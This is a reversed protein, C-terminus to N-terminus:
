TSNSLMSWYSTDVGQLAWNELDATFCPWHYDAPLFDSDPPQQQQQQPEDTLSSSSAVPPVPIEYPHPTALQPDLSLLTFSPNSITSPPTTSISTSTSSSPKTQGHPILSPQSSSSSSLSPNITVTGLFPITLHVDHRSGTADHGEEHQHQQQQQVIPLLQAITDGAEICLRDGSTSGTERMRECVREAMDRDEARTNDDHGGGSGNANPVSTALHGLLLSMAAVLAAYDVHRSATATSCVNRFELFRRLVERSAQMCVGRSYDYRRQGPDRLLYPLHLLILLSFHRVQLKIPSIDPSYNDSSSSCCYYSSATDSMSLASSSSSNGGIASSSSSSSPFQEWWPFDVIRSAREIEVDIAQTLAYADNDKTGKDKSQNLLENRHAIRGSIVAYAKGMRDNPTDEDENGLAFSDDRAGISLGLILSLYRDNCNIRFWLVSASPRRAPDSTPDCSRIVGANRKDIGMLQAMSLARRTTVWAKRLHGADSQYFALLALCELGELCGVLDDDSTVLTSAASVWERMAQAPPKDLGLRRETSIAADPGPDPPLQQVCIALQILRKALLAPHSSPDPVRALSSIPEPKGEVQDRQSYFAHLVYQVGPSQQSIAYLTSQPPFLAHLQRSVSLYRSTLLTSPHHHQRSVKANSHLLTIHQANGAASNEFVDPDEQNAEIPDQAHPSTTATSPTLLRKDSSSSSTVANEVLKEM